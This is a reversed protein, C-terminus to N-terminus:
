NGRSRDNALEDETRDVDDIERDSLRKTYARYVANHDTVLGNGTLWEAIERFTFGKEDRLHRITDLNDDIERRDPEQRAM